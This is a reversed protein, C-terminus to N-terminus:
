CVSRHVGESMPRRAKHKEHSQLGASAHKKEQTAAFPQWTALDTADSNMVSETVACIDSILHDLLDLSM